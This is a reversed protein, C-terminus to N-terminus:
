LLNTVARCHMGKGPGGASFGTASGLLTGIVFLTSMERSTWSFSEFALSISM